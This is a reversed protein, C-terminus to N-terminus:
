GSFLVQPELDLCINEGTHAHASAWITSQLATV